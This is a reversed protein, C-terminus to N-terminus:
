RGPRALDLVLGLTLGGAVAGFAIPVADGINGSDATMATAIFAGAAVIALSVRRTARRVGTEIGEIGRFHVQLKPGPRAGTLREFSEVLRGVRVKIKQTEYMVTQPDAVNRLRDFASKAMFSGAVSFPDLEPDLEATALQVQALAKGTLVLPAPLAVGHRISITTIDQLMPGLQIERLPLHRYRTVLSAIEERYDSVDLNPREEEGSIMLTVDALFEVDERWFALLMLMLGDRLQPGVEGVMGFDLFYIKGDWWKLNGPHPDAHFFGETLIQRYYSELLQRAADKREAGEPASEMPGGQVEEMVLLRDTSIETYVDPVALRPYRELLAGMREINTAELRFDLERQLSESLHEVVAAPDVIQRLAPRAGSKRAFVELLGLDRTIEERATPRQVKVVVREGNALTARHVQAITGCALSEPEITEFVDEWPVGLEQEMVEVVQSESLPPVQDRLTSLEDIVEAPVLDPRTSLIQGLKCFTPGLEELASRLRRASARVDTEDKHGVRSWLEKFGHKTAVKAITAARATLLPDEDEEPEPLDIVPPPAKGRLVEGSTNVVIVTCRALHTIRNPVNALLFKKRGAMGANGVVVLDAHVEDAVRLIAVAPDDDVVVRATGRAGALADVERALVGAALDVRPKTEPLGETGPDPEPPLVQVIVLEATYRGALDAAWQVAREATESRDTAVV